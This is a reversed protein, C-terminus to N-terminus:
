GRRARRRSLDKHNDTGNDDGARSFAIFLHEDLGQPRAQGAQHPSEELFVAGPTLGPILAVPSLQYLTIM